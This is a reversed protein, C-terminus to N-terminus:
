GGLGRKRAESALDAHMYRLSRLVLIISVPGGLFVLVQLFTIARLLDLTQGIEASSVANSAQISTVHRDFELKLARLHVAAYMVCPFLLLSLLARARRRMLQDEPVVM